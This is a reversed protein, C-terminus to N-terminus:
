EDHLGRNKRTKVGSQLASWFTNTADIAM